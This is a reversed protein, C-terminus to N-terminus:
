TEVNPIFITLDAKVGMEAKFRQEFQRRFLKARDEQGTLKYVGVLFGCAKEDLPDIIMNKELLVEAEKLAGRNLLLQILAHSAEAYISKYRERPMLIWEEYPSDELFDGKYLEVIQRLLVETEDMSFSHSNYKKYLEEFEKVDTELLIGSGIRFGDIDEVILAYEDEFGMQLDALSKRLAYLAVRLSTFAAKTDSEPWFMASLTERTVYKGSNTLIYKLIGSSKRNKWETKDIAFENKCISFCGFFTAKIIQASKASEICGVIFDKPDVVALSPNKVMREGHVAGFYLSIIKLMHGSAISREMALACSRVLPTYTMEHFYVYDHQSSLEAWIGVYKELPKMEGKRYYLDTLHMAAACMHQRAKKKMSTIYASLLLAEAIDYVGAAKYIAGMMGQCLEYYGHGADKKPIILFEAEAKQIFAHTASLDSEWLYGTILSASELIPSKYIRYTQAVKQMDTIAGTIDRTQYKTIASLRYAFSGSFESDYKEALQAFEEMIKKSAEIDRMLWLTNHCSVLGIIRWQDSSLGVPHSLIKPLSEYAARLRGTRYLLLVRIILFCYDWIAESIKMGELLKRFVNGLRFNEDAVASIFGSVLLKIRPAGGGIIIKLKPIYTAADKLYKFDNTQFAIVLLMGFTNMFYTMDNRNRFMILAKSFCDYAEAVNSTLLMIGRFFLLCPEELVINEPFETVLYMVKEPNGKAFYQAGALSMIKLAKDTQGAAVYFSISPQLEDVKEYYHAARVFLDKIYDVSKIRELYMELERRFLSHFRYKVPSTMFKQIYMNSKELWSLVDMADEIHLIEELECISFDQLISMEALTNLKNEDIEKLFENFFLSFLTERHSAVSSQITRSSDIRSIMYLGAIWGEAYEHIRNLEARTPKIKYTDFFLKETEERTFRLDDENILVISDNLAIKGSYIGTSVRSMVVVGIGPPMNAIFYCISKSILPNEVANQYDDLVLYNCVQNDTFYEWADQCILANILSYEESINSIGNLGRYCELTAKDTGAFLTEIVHTYFVLLLADEKELRYWHIYQREKKLSLLVATTKGFGGSATIIVARKKSIKLSKMRDSYLIKNPLEPIMFKSKVLPINNM